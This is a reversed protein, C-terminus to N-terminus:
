LGLIPVLGIDAVSSKSPFDFRQDSDIQGEPGMFLALDKM